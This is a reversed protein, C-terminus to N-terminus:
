LATLDVVYLSKEDAVYMRSGRALYSRGRATRLRKGAEDVLQVQRVGGAVLDVLSLGKRESYGPSFLVMSEALAFAHPGAPCPNPWVSEVHFDVLKVLPFEDYYYVWAENDSVANLAYCDVIGPVEASTVSGFRFVPRGVLDLCILGEALESAESYKEDFNSVWVKGDSTAQVSSIADGAHFDSETRGARDFLVANHEPDRARSEVCLWGHPTRQIHHYPRTPGEFTTSRWEGGECRWVVLEADGPLGLERAWRTITPDAGPRPRWAAMLPEAEFDLFVGMPADDGFLDPFDVVKQASITMKDGVGGEVGEISM